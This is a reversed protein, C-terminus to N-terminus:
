HGTRITIKFGTKVPITILLGAGEEILKGKLLSIISFVQYFLSFAASTNSPIKQLNAVSTLNTSSAVSNLNVDEKNILNM